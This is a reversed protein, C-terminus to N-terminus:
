QLRVSGARRRRKHRTGCTRCSRINEAPIIQEHQKRGPLHRVTKQITLKMDGMVPPDLKKEIKPQTM